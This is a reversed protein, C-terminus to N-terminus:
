GILCWGLDDLFDKIKTTFIVEPRNPNNPLQLAVVAYFDRISPNVANQPAIAEVPKWPTRPHAFKVSITILFM